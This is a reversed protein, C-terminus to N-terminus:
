RERIFDMRVAAMCNSSGCEVTCLTEEMSVKTTESPRFMQNQRLSGPYVNRKKKLLLSTMKHSNLEYLEIM